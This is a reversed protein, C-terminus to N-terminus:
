PANLAEERRKLKKRARSVDFTRWTLTQPKNRKLWELLENDSAANGLALEAEAVLAQAPPAKQSRLRARVRKGTHEKRRFTASHWDANLAHLQDALSAGLAEILEETPSAAPLGTLRAVLERTPETFSGELEPNRLESCIIRFLRGDM